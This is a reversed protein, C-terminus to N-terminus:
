SSADDPTVEKLHFESIDIDHEIFKNVLARSPKYSTRKFEGIIKGEPTRREIVYQFIPHTETQGKDNIIVESIYTIRRVGDVMRSIQVVIDVANAVLGRVAQYNIDMGRELVLNVLRIVCADPDNAHITALSGDHGTNMANLLDYATHDRVEGVVIRDPRMRLTNKVLAQISVAGKGEANADKTELSVVHASKLQLEASDEVTLIREEDPIFNSLVNLTTTKGSGTGGSVIINARAVVLKELFRSVEPTMTQYRLLDQITMSDTKFKRITITVGKRSVPPIIVHVRSGDPLRADVFPHSSDIMRGIHQVIRRALDMVQEEDKFKVTTQELSGNREVWVEDYRNVMVESVTPDDMLKSLPGLNTIDNLMEKLFAEQEISNLTSNSKKVIETMYRKVRQLQEADKLGFLPMGATYTPLRRQIENKLREREEARSESEQEQFTRGTMRDFLDSM